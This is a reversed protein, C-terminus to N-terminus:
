GRLSDVEGAKFQSNLVAAQRIADKWPSFDRLPLLDVVLLGDAGTLCGM